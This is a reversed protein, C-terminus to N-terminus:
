VQFCQWTKWCTPLLSSPLDPLTSINPCDWIALKELGSLCRLNTPLSKMECRLLELSKVRTLNASVELSVSPDKCDHLSIDTATFGKASLMHNLMVPNSVALARTISFQSTCELTLKPVDILQVLDFQLSSLGEFTCLDPLCRLEFSEVSTLRGVSMSASSRCGNLDLKKLKPLDSCFFDATLVCQDVRLDELSLPLYESGRALQLSPCCMIGLTILSAAARLGGLSRICWCQEIVVFELKKSHRFVEESPLTTLTMIDTFRFKKLTTLSGFWSSLASDTISCSILFLCVLGSPPVLQLGTRSQYVLGRRLEHCCVWAKIISDKLLAEEIEGQLASEITRLNESLDVDMKTMLQKLFSHELLLAKRIQPCIFKKFSYPDAESFLAFQSAFYDTMTINEWQEQQEVEDNSIFM